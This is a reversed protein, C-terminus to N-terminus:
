TNQRYLKKVHSNIQTMLFVLGLPIVTGVCWYALWWGNEAFGKIFPYEAIMGIPLDNMEVILFSILKFALFHFALISITNKGAYSLLRQLWAPKEHWREFLSKLSWTALTATILYPLFKMNDYFAPGMGMYWFFSGAFTVALCLLSFFVSFQPMKYESLAYGTLFLFSAAFTQPHLMPIFWQTHNLIIAILLCPAAALFTNKLLLKSLYAIITGLFLVRVFWFGGLLCDVGGLHLVIHTSLELGEAITIRERIWGYHEDYVHISFFLNRLWLFILGYKVYPWYLRKIRKWIYVRPQSLYKEKFCFGSLLFFLPMHFMYIFPTVYPIGCGSHGLVMLIIAMGKLYTLTNNETTGTLTNSKEM